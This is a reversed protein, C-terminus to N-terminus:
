KWDVLYVDFVLISNAPIGGQSAGGYGLKSPIILKGKGGKQYKPIGEQWGEIVQTLKFEIPYGATTGDFKTGDLLYGTYECKVTSTSTPYGGYGGTDTTYFLGSETFQGKLGNAAVYDKIKKNEKEDRKCAGLFLSVAVLAVVLYKSLNM